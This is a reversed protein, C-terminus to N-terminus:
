TTSAPACSRTSIPAGARGGPRTSRPQRPLRDRRARRRADAEAPRAREELLEGDLPRRAPPGRRAHGARRLHGRQARRRDARLVRAAGAVHEAPAPAAVPRAGPRLPAALGLGRGGGLRPDRRPVAARRARAAGRGDDGAPGRPDRGAGPQLAPGGRRERDLEHQGRQRDRARQAAPAARLLGRPERARARDARRRRGRRAGVARGAAAGGLPGLAQVGHDLVPDAAPALAGPVHAIEWEVQADGERRRRLDYRTPVRFVGYVREPHAALGSSQLARVVDELQRKGTTAFRTFAIAPAEPALFPARARERAGREAASIQARQAEDEVEPIPRNLNAEGPDLVDRRDDFTEGVADKFGEFSQKFVAGIERLNTPAAVDPAPQVELGQSPWSRRTSRVRRAGGGGRAEGDAREARAYARAM